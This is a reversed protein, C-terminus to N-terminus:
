LKGLKVRLVNREDFVALGSGNLEIRGGGLFSSNIEFNGDKFLRWGSKGPVYNESQITDSITAFNLSAKGIIAGNMIANGDKIIFAPVPTGNAQNMIMFKDALFIVNSQMGTETNEVGMTMGAVYQQGKDDVEVKM